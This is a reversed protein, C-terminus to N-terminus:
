KNAQITRIAERGEYICAGLNGMMYSKKQTCEGAAYLNEIPNGEADVVTTDDLTLIGGYTTHNEVITEVVYYPANLLNSRMSTTAKGFEDVGAEVGAAYADITAKLGDYDINMTQAVEELTDCVTYMDWTAACGVDEKIVALDAITSDFIAYVRDQLMAAETFATYDGAENFFRKGESNVAIGGNGAVLTLSRSGGRYYGAIAHFNAYDMGVLQAGVAEAMLMGSGDAGIGCDFPNSGFGPLYKETMEANAFFGGTALVVAGANLTYFEGNPAEVVVGTVKGSEDTTLHDARSNLRYDIGNEDMYSRMDETLYGGLRAGDPGYLQLYSNIPGFEVGVHKLWDADASAQHLFAISKEDTIKSSAIFQETTFPIGQEAHVETGAAIIFGARGSGGGLIGLQELLVVSLGQQYAEVAASLGAAGGGVVVVDVTEDVPTNMDKQMPIQMAAISGGAQEVASSVAALFGRSTVTAGAVADVNLTQNAIIAERLDWMARDGVSHNEVHEGIEISEIATESFTVKIEFNSNHGAVTASYTGPTFTLTASAGNASDLAIQVATKVGGSTITAGAVADIEASNAELIKATLAELAAGGIAPTEDKGSLEVGTIVGNELTLNAIIEGGFGQASGSFTGSVADALACNGFLILCLIMMVSLIRKM